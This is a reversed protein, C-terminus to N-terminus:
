SSAAGNDDDKGDPKDGPPPPVKAGLAEAILPLYTKLITLIKEQTRLIQKNQEIIMDQKDEIRKQSAEMREQWKNLGFVMKLHDYVAASIVSVLVGSFLGILVLGLTVDIMGVNIYYAGAASVVAIALMNCGFLITGAAARERLTGHMGGADEGGM